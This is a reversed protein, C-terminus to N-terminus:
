VAGLLTRANGGLIKAKDAKPISLSAILDVTDYQGMDYPYDSGLLVRDAGASGILFEM